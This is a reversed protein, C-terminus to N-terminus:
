KLLDVRSQACQCQLQKKGCSIAVCKIASKIASTFCDRNSLLVKLPIFFDEFFLFVCFIPPVFDDRAASIYLVNLM